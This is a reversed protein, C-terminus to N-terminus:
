RRSRNWRRYSRPQIPPCVTIEIDMGDVVRGFLAAYDKEFLAQYTEADPDGAEAASIVVPIEEGQIWPVTSVVIALIAVQWTFRDLLHRCGFGSRM